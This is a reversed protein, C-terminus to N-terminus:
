QSPVLDVDVDRQPYSELPQTMMGLSTRTVTLSIQRGRNHDLMSLFELLNLETVIIDGKSIGSRDFASGAEVSRIVIVRPPGSDRWAVASECTIGFDRAIKSKLRYTFIQQFSVQGVAAVVALAVILMAYPLTSRSVRREFKIVGSNKKGALRFVEALAAVLVVAAFLAPLAFMAGAAGFYSILAFQGSLVATLVMLGAIGFRFLRSRSPQAQEALTATVPESTASEHRTM